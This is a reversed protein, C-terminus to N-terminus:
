QELGMDKLAKNAILAEGGNAGAIARLALEGIRCKKKLLAIEREMERILEQDHEIYVLADTLEEALYELGKSVSKLHGSRCITGGYKSIGKETQRDLRDIISQRYSMDKATQM